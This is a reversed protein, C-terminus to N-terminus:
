CFVEFISIKIVPGSTTIVHNEPNLRGLIPINFANTSNSSFVLRKPNTGNFHQTLSERTDEAINGTEISLDYGSRGPSAGNNRYFKDMFSYVVEPKPFSTAGNDLYMFDEM